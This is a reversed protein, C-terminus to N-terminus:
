AFPSPLVLALGAAILLLTGNYMAHLIVSARLGFHERTMALIVGGLTVIMLTPPDWRHVSAFAMATIAVTTWLGHRRLVSFMAQRFVLEEVIPTAVCLSAMVFVPTLWDGQSVAMQLTSVLLPHDGVRPGVDQAGPTMAMAIALGICVAWAVAIAKGMRASLDPEPPIRELRHLAYLIPVVLLVSAATILGKIAQIAAM